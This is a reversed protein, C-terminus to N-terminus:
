SLQSRYSKQHPNCAKVHSFRRNGVSLHDAWGIWQVARGGVASPLMVENPVTALVESMRSSRVQCTMWARMARNSAWPLPRSGVSVRAWEVHLSCLRSPQISGTVIQLSTSVLGLNRGYPPYSPSRVTDRCGSWRSESDSRM